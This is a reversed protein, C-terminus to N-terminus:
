IYFLLNLLKLLSMVVRIVADDCKVCLGFWLLVSGEIMRIMVAWECEVQRTVLYEYQTIVKGTLQERDSHEHRQRRKHTDRVPTDRM